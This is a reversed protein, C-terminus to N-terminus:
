RVRCWVDRAVRLKEGGCGAAHESVREPRNQGVNWHRHRAGFARLSGTGSEALVRALRAPLVWRSGFFIFPTGIRESLPELRITQAFSVERSMPGPGKRVLYGVPPSVRTQDMWVVLRKVGRYSGELSQNYNQVRLREVQANNCADSGCAQRCM